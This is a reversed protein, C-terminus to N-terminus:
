VALGFQSTAAVRLQGERHTAMLTHLKEDRDDGHETAGSDRNADGLFSALLDIAKSRPEGRHKDHGHAFGKGQTERAKVLSRLFAPGGIGGNSAFDDEM